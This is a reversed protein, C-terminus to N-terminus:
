NISKLVTEQLPIFIIIVFDINPYSCINLLFFFYKFNRKISAYTENKNHMYRICFLGIATSTFNNFM